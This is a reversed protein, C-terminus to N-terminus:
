EAPRATLRGDEGLRLGGRRVEATASEEVDEPEDPEIPPVDVVDFDPMGKILDIIRPHVNTCDLQWLNAADWQLDGRAIPVGALKNQDDVTLRRVVGPIQRNYVVLTFGKSM